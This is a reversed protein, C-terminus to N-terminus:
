PPPGRMVCLDPADNGNGSGHKIAGQNYATGEANGNYATTKDNYATSYSCATTEVDYATNSVNYSTCYNIIRQEASETCLWLAINKDLM